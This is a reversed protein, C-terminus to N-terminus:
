QLVAKKEDNVHDLEEIHERVEPGAAGARLLAYHQDLNMYIGVSLMENGRAHNIGAATLGITGDDQSVLILVGSVRLKHAVFQAVNGMHLDPGGTVPSKPESM